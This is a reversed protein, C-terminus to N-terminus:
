NSLNSYIDQVLDSDDLAEFLKQCKEKEEKGLEIEEKAVWGLSTSEIKIGKDELNKKIEELGEVNVYVNLFQDDWGIDEAGSEIVLLEWREKEKGTNGETQIIICGKREFMWRVSGEDALKGGNQILVQKIEGLSRNKNDTIGEIIIAAGGPGYAEYTVEELTMGEIEGTGKKIAKEIKDAPVNFSRAKEVAMKLRPNFNIDKGGERAAVSILQSLKSFAKSKKADTIGKKHKISSWHSHGSM